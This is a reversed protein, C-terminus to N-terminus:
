EKLKFPAKTIFAGKERAHSTLSTNSLFKM